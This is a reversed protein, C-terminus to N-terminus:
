ATSRGRTRISLPQMERSLSQEGEADVILHLRRQV